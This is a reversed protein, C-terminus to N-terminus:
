SWLQGPSFCTQRRVRVVNRLPCDVVSIWYAMVPTGRDTNAPAPSSSEQHCVAVPADFVAGVVHAVHRQLFVGAANAGSMGRLVEGGQACAQM